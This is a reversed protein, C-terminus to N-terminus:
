KIGIKPTIKPAKIKFSCIVQFTKTDSIIIIDPMYITFFYLLYIFNSNLKSKKIIKEIILKKVNRKIEFYEIKKKFPNSKSWSKEFGWANWLFGVALAPPM